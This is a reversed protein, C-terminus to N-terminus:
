IMRSFPSAEIVRPVSCPLGSPYKEAGANAILHKPLLTRTSGAVVTDSAKQCHAFIVVTVLAMFIIKKM